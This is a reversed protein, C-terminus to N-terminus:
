LFIKIKLIHIKIVSIYVMILILIMIIVHLNGDKMMGLEIFITKNDQTKMLNLMQNLM